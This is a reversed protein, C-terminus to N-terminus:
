NYTSSLYIRKTKYHANSQNKQQFVKNLIEFINKFVTGSLFCHTFLASKIHISNRNDIFIPKVFNFSLDSFILVTYNTFKQVKKM